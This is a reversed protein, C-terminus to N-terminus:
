FRFQYNIASSNIDTEFGYTNEDAELGIRNTISNIADKISYTDSLNGPNYIAFNVSTTGGDTSYNGLFQNERVNTTPDLEKIGLYRDTRIDLDTNVQPTYQDEYGEAGEVGVERQYVPYVHNLPLPTEPSLLSGTIDYTRCLNLYQTAACGGGFDNEGADGLGFNSCDDTKWSGDNDICRYYWYNGNRPLCGEDDSTFPGRDFTGDYEPFYSSNAINDYTSNLLSPHDEERFWLYRPSLSGQSNINYNVASHVTNWFYYM